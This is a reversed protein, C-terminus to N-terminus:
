SRLWQRVAWIWARDRVAAWSASNSPAAWSVDVVRRRIGDKAIATLPLGRLYPEIHRASACPSVFHHRYMFSVRPRLESLRDARNAWGQRLELVGSLPLHNICPEPPPPPLPCATIHDDHPEAAIEDAINPILPIRASAPRGHGACPPAPGPTAVRLPHPQDPEPPEGRRAPCGPAPCPVGSVNPKGPNVPMHPRALLPRSWTLRTVMALVPAPPASGPLWGPSAQARLWTRQALHIGWNM